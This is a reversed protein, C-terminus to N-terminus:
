RNTTWMCANCAARAEHLEIHQLRAVVELSKRRRINGFIFLTFGKKGLCFMINEPIREPKRCSFIYMKLGIFWISDVETLNHRTEFRVVFNYKSSLYRFSLRMLYKYISYEYVARAEDLIMQKGKAKAFITLSSFQRQSPNMKTRLKILRVCM